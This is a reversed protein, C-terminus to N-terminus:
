KERAIYAEGPKTHIGVMFIEPVQLSLRYYMDEPVHLLREDYMKVTFEGPVQLQRKRGRKQYTMQLEACVKEIM